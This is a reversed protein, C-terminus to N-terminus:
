NIGLSIDEYDGMFLGARSLLETVSKGLERYDAGAAPIRAIFVMDWGPQLRIKRLIERLLRKVRNRVVAKGVRRSITFGYRSLELGNPLARLVLVKDVWSSGKDYVLDFQKKGTLYQKGRVTLVGLRDTTM